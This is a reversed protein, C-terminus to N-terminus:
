WYCVLVNGHPGEDAANEKQGADGEEEGWVVVVVVVVGGWCDKGRGTSVGVLPEAACGPGIGIGVAVRMTRRAIIDFTDSGHSLPIATKIERPAIGISIQDIIPIAVIAVVFVSVAVHIDGGWGVVVVAAFGPDM